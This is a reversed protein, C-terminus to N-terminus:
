GGIQWVQGGCPKSWSEVVNGSTDLAQLSANACDDSEINLNATERRGPEVVKLTFESRDPNIQKVTVQGTSDNQMTFGDNPECKVASLLVTGSMVALLLLSKAKVGM